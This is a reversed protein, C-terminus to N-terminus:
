TPRPKSEYMYNGMVEVFEAKRQLELINMAGGYTLGSKVGGSFQNLVDQVRKNIENTFSIGEPVTGKKVTGYFDNQFDKSAQGRYKSLVKVKYGLADLQELKSSVDGKIELTECNDNQNILLTKDSASEFTKSFIGGMMVTCAGAALALVADRTEVIGGDAIIPVRLKKAIQAVDYVASFQPIGFGTVIRTTCASNHVVCNNAIFSHSPDDVEIDYVNVRGYYETKVFEYLTSDDGVLKCKKFDIESLPVFDYFGHAFNYIYFRHNGTCIVKDYVCGNKFVLKVVRQSGMCQKNLVKAYQQNKTRVEDGIEIENINKFSNRMTVRTNKAFCGGGVGVKVADAGANVLDQYGMQTCVNGAIIEMDPRAKRFEKILHQMTECHGHAVDICVGRAGNDVLEIGKEFDKFGVSVYCSNKFEKVWEMQKEFTTFRHFIPYSGNNIIIRAMSSNIVTDMNAPIFPCNVETKRTLWTKLNPKLRSDINNYQPVLAVDQYTYTKTFM